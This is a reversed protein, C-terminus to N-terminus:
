MVLYKVTSLRVAGISKAVSRKSIFAEDHYCIIARCVVENKGGNGYMTERHSDFAHKNPRTFASTGDSEKDNIYDDNGVNSETETLGTGGSHEIGVTTNVDVSPAGSMGLMEAAITGNNNGNAITDSSDNGSTVVPDIHTGPIDKINTKTRGACNDNGDITIGVTGNGNTGTGNDVSGNANNSNVDPDSTVQGDAFSTGGIIGGESLPTCQHLEDKGCAGNGQTKIGSTDDDCALDNDDIGNVSSNPPKNHSIKFSDTSIQVFEITAFEKFNIAVKEIIATDNLAAFVIENFIQVSKDIYTGFKILRFLEFRCKDFRINFSKASKEDGVAIINAESPEFIGDSIEIDIDNEVHMFRLDIPEDALKIDNLNIHVRRIRPAKQLIRSIFQWYTKGFSKNDANAIRAHWSFTSLNELKPLNAWICNQILPDLDLKRAFDPHTLQIDLQSCGSFLSVILVSTKYTDSSFRTANSFPECNEDRIVLEGAYQAMTVREFSTANDDVSVITNDAIGFAIRRFRDANTDVFTAFSRLRDYAFQCNTFKITSITRTGDIRLVNSLNHEFIADVITVNVLKDAPLFNLDIEKHISKNAFDISVNCLKACKEAIKSIFNNYTEGISTTTGDITMVDFRLDTLNSLESSYRISDVCRMEDMNQTPFLRLSLSTIAPFARIISAIDKITENRLSSEGIDVSTVHQYLALKGAYQSFRVNELRKSANADRVDATQNDVDFAISAFREANADVYKAFALLRDYAFQCSGFHISISKADDIRIMNSQNKTFKGNEVILEIHDVNTRIVLMEHISIKRLNITIEDIHKCVTLIKNIYELQARSEDGDKSAVDFHLRKANQLFHGASQLITEDARQTLLIECFLKSMEDACQNNAGQLRERLMWLSKGREYIRGNKKNFEVAWKAMFLAAFYDHLSASAFCYKKEDCFLLGIEVFTELMNVNAQIANMQTQDFIYTKKASDALCWWSVYALRKIQEFDPWEDAADQGAYKRIMGKISWLPKTKSRIQKLTNEDLKKIMWGVVKEYVETRTGKKLQKHVICIMTLMLPTAAMEQYAWNHEFKSWVKAIKKAKKDNANAFHADIYPIQRDHDFGVINVFTANARGNIEITPRRTVILYLNLKEIIGRSNLAQFLQECQDDVAADYGDLIILAKCKEYLMPERISECITKEVGIKAMGDCVMDIISQHPKYSTSRFEALLVIDYTNWKDISSAWDFAIKQTM